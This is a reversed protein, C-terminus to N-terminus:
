EVIPDIASGFVASVENTYEVIHEKFYPPLQMQIYGIFTYVLAMFGASQIWEPVAVHVRGGKRGFYPESEGFNVFLETDLPVVTKAHKTQENTFVRFVVRPGFLENFKTEFMEAMMTFREPIIFYFATYASLGDPIMPILESELYSRIQVPDEHTKALLMGMYTSTNYTYPERNRPFTYTSGQPLLQKAPASPNNTFLITPISRETLYEVIGVAHKSGSASIVYAGDIAPLASLRTKYSSEDAFVADTDTFLVRGAVAANGSGIVIPRAFRKLDLVPLASEEFLELAGFVVTHLDPLDNLTFNDLLETYTGM